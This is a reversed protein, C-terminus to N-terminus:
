SARERRVAALEVRSRRRGGRDEQGSVGGSANIEDFTMLAVDKPGNRQDGHERCRHLVGVKVTDAAHRLPYAAPAALAATLM